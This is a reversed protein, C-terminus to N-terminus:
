LMKFAAREYESVKLWFIFIHTLRLTYASYNIAVKRSLRLCFVIGVSRTLIWEAYFCHGCGRCKGKRGFGEEGYRVWPRYIIENLHSRSSLSTSSTEPSRLSHVLLARKDRLRIIPIPKNWSTDRPVSSILGTTMPCWLPCGILRRRASRLPRLKTTAVTTWSETSFQTKVIPKWTHHCSSTFILLDAKLPLM